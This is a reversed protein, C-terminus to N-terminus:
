IAARSARIRAPRTGPSGRRARGRGPRLRADAADRRRAGHAEPERTEFRLVGRGASLKWGAPLDICAPRQGPRASAAVLRLGSELHRVTLGPGRSGIAGRWMRRLVRRQIAEPLRAITRVPVGARAVEAGSRGHFPPRRRPGAPLSNTARSAIAAVGAEGVADPTTMARRLALAALGELLRDIAALESALAAARRALGARRAAARAAPAGLADLLAPVVGHRIRNRLHAHGANSRDERWRIGHAALEAEIEARTAALLPKRWAGRSERMGAFGALGSGRALRMILTELQDDATHATAVACAGTARAVRALWERRLRRLGDEGALGRRRMRERCDWRTATLPVGLTRCLARVARLDADADRGRLGHHLHAAHLAIELEPALAALTVLLATSDAGGSVAV